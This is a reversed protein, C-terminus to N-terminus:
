AASLESATNEMREALNALLEAATILGDRRGPDAALRRHAWGAIDLVDADDLSKISSSNGRLSTILKNKLNERDQVADRIEDALREVRGGAAEADMYRMYANNVRAVAAVYRSYAASLEKRRAFADLCAAAGRIDAAYINLMDATDASSLSREEYTNPGTIYARTQNGGIQTLTDVFKGAYIIYVLRMVVPKLVYDFIEERAKFVDENQTELGTLDVGYRMNLTRFSLTSLAKKGPNDRTGAPQFHDAAFVALDVMFAPRVISDEEPVPPAKEIPQTEGPAIDATGNSEMPMAQTDDVQERTADDDGAVIDDGKPIDRLYGSVQGQNDPQAPETFSPKPSTRIFKYWVVGGVGLALLLPIVILLNRKM